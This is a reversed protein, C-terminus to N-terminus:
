NSIRFLRKKWYLAFPQSIKPKISPFFHKNALTKTTAMRGRSTHTDLIYREVQLRHQTIFGYQTPSLMTPTQTHKSFLIDQQKAMDAITGRTDNLIPFLDIIGSFTLVFVAAIAICKGIRSSWLRVIAYASCMGAIIM